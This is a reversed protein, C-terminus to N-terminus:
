ICLDDMLGRKSMYSGMKAYLQQSEPPSVDELRKIGQRKTPSSDKFQRRRKFAHLSLQNLGGCIGDTEMREYDAIFDVYKVMFEGRYTDRQTYKTALFKLDPESISAGVLSHGKFPRLFKQIRHVFDRWTVVEEENKDDEEFLHMIVPGTISVNQRKSIVYFKDLIEQYMVELPKKALFLFSKVFNGTDIYPPM